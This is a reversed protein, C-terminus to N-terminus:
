HLQDVERKDDSTRKGHDDNKRSSAAEENFSAFLRRFMTILGSESRAARTEAYDFDKHQGSAITKESAIRREASDKETNAPIKFCM